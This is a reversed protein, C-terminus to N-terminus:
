RQRGSNDFFYEKKECGFDKASIIPHRDATATADISHCVADSQFTEIYLM